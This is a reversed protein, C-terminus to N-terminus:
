SNRLLILYVGKLQLHIRLKTKGDHITHHDIMPNDAHLEVEGNMKFDAERLISPTILNHDMQPIHLTDKMM